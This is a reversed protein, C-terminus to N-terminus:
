VLPRGSTGANGRCNTSPRTCGDDTCHESCAYGALDEAPEERRDLTFLDATAADLIANDDM